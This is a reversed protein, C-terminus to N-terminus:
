YIGVTEFECFPRDSDEIDALTGYTCCAEYRGWMELVEPHAHADEIADRDIWEFTEVVTGDAARMAVAPSDTALGLRRLLPVHDATEAEVEAQMGPKPRYVAVVRIGMAPVSGHEGM